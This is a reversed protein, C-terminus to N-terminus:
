KIERMENCKHQIKTTSSISKCLKSEITGKSNKSNSNKYKTEEEKKTSVHKLGGFLVRFKQMIKYKITQLQIDYDNDAGAASCFVIFLRRGFLILICSTFTRRMDIEFLRVLFSKSFICPLFQKQKTQKKLPKQVVIAYSENILIIYQQSRVRDWTPSM